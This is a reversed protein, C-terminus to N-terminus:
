QIFARTRAFYFLDRYNATKLPAKKIAKLMLRLARNKHGMYFNRRALERFYLSADQRYPLDLKQIFANLFVRDNREVPDTGTLKRQEFLFPILKLNHMKRRDDSWDRSVSAPHDRNFYLAPKINLLKYRELILWTWYYDESGIRDFYEHYKGVTHLIERKFLYTGPCMSYFGHLMANMVAEHKTYYNTCYMPQGDESIITMNTGCAGLAPDKEFERMQIALRDPASYDDADQFLVFEGQALDFLHNSTKLYGQNKENNFFRIRPDNFSQIAEATHDKSGDNMILLELNSYTQNLISDIAERIYPEVNYAPMIVSVLPKASM